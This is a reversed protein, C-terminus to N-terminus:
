LSDTKSFYGSSSTDYKLRKPIELNKELELKRKEANKNIADFYKASNEMYIKFEEETYKKEKPANKIIENLDLNKDRFIFFDEKNRQINILFEKFVSQIDSLTEKLEELNDSKYFIKAFNGMLDDMHNHEYQIFSEIEQLKLLLEYNEVIINKNKKYKNLDYLSKIFRNKIKKLYNLYDDLEINVKEIIEFLAISINEKLFIKIKNYQEDVDGLKSLINVNINYIDHVNKLSYGNKQLEYILSKIKNLELELYYKKENLRKKNFIGQLKNKKFNELNNQSFDM